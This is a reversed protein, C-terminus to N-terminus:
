KSDREDKAEKADALKERLVEILTDAAIPEQEGGKLNKLVVNGEDLEKGLIVAFRARAKNAESLLKGVNRTAKYSHRVHLGASRLKSSLLYLQDIVEDKAAILFVDPHMSRELVAELLENDQLVLRIVIDGM